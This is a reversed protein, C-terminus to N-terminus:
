REALWPLPHSDFLAIGAFDSALPGQLAHKVAHYMPFVASTIHSHAAAYAHCPVSPYLSAFALQSRVHDGRHRLQQASHSTLNPLTRHPQRRASCYDISEKPDMHMHARMAQGQLASTPRQM